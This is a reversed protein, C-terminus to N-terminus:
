LLAAARVQDGWAVRRGDPLLYSGALADAVASRGLSAARARDIKLEAQRAAALAPSDLCPLVRLAGPPM